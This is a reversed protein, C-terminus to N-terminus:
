YSDSTGLAHHPKKNGTQKSVSIVIYTAWAPGSGGTEAEQTNLNYTHVVLGLEKLRTKFSLIFKLSMILM